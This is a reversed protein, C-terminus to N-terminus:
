YFLNYLMLLLAPVFLFLIYIVLKNKFESLDTLLSTIRESSKNVEEDTMDKQKEMINSIEKYKSNIVNVGIMIVLIGLIALLSSVTYTTGYNNVYMHILGVIYMLLTIIVLLIQSITFKRPKM